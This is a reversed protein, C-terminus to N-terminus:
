SGCNIRRRIKEKIIKIVEYIWYGYVLITPVLMYSVFGTLYEGNKEINQIAWSHVYMFGILFIYVFSFFATFLFLKRNLKIKVSVAFFLLLHLYVFHMIGIELFPVASFRGTGYINSMYTRLVDSTFSDISNKYQYLGFRGLLALIVMSIVLICLEERKRMNRLDASRRVCIEYLM